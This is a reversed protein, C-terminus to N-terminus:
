IVFASSKSVATSYKGADRGLERDPGGGRVAAPDHEAPTVVIGCPPELPETWSRRFHCGKESARVDWVTMSSQVGVVYPLGLETLGDRFENSNGYAADALVM